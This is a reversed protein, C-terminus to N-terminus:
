QSVQKAGKKELLFGKKIFISSPYHSLDNESSFPINLNNSLGETGLYNFLFKGEKDDLGIINTDADEMQSFGKSAHFTDVLVEM